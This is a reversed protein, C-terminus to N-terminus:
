RRGNLAPRVATITTVVSNAWNANDWNQGYAVQAGIFFAGINIM